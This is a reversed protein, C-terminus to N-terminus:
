ATIRGAASIPNCSPRKLEPIDQINPIKYEGLNAALVKGSEDYALDEIV